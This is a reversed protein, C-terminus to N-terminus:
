LPTDSGCRNTSSSVMLHKASGLRVSNSLSGITRCSIARSPVESRWTRAIAVRARRRISCCRLRDSAASRVGSEEGVLRARAPQESRIQFLCGWGMQRRGSLGHPMKWNVPGTAPRILFMVPVNRIEVLGWHASLVQDATSYVLSVLWTKLCISEHSSLHRFNRSPRHSLLCITEGRSYKLEFGSNRGRRLNHTGHAARGTSSRPRRAM